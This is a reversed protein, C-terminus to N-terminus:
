DYCGRGGYSRYSPRHYYRPACYATRSYHCDDCDDYRRSRYHGHNNNSSGLGYALLGVAAAGAVAAAPDVVQRPQGYSDYSTTCSVGLCSVLGAM